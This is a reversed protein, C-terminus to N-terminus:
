GSFPTPDTFAITLSPTARIMTHRRVACDDGTRLRDPVAPRAEPDRRSCCGAKLADTRGLSSSIRSLLDRTERRNPARFPASIADASGVERSAPAYYGARTITNLQQRLTRAMAVRAVSALPRDPGANTAACTELSASSAHNPRLQAQGRRATPRLRREHCSRDSIPRRQSRGHALSRPRTPMERNSEARSALAAVEPRPPSRSTSPRTQPRQTERFRTCITHQPSPRRLALGPEGVRHEGVDDARREVLRSGRQGRGLLTRERGRQQADCRVLWSVRARRGRRQDAHEALEGALSRHEHRDVVHLPHIGRGLARELERRAPKGSPQPHQQRLAGLALILSREVEIVGQRLVPEHAYDETRERERRQMVDDAAPEGTASARGISARM